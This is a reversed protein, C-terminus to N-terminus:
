LVGGTAAELIIFSWRWIKSIILKKLHDILTLSCYGFNSITTDNETTAQYVFVTLYLFKRFIKSQYCIFMFSRLKWLRGVRIGLYFKQFHIKHGLLPFSISFLLTLLSFITKSTFVFPGLSLEKKLPILQKKKQKKTEVKLNRIWAILDDLFDGYKEM